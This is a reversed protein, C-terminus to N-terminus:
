KAGLQSKSSKCQQEIHQVIQLYNWWEFCCHDSQIQTLDYNNAFKGLLLVSAYLFKIRSVSLSLPPCLPLSRRFFLSFCLCFRHSMCLFLSYLFFLPSLSASLCLALFLGSIFIPFSLCLSLTLYLLFLRFSPCPCLTFYLSLSPFLSLSLM